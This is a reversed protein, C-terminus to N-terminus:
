LFIRRAGILKESSHAFTDISYSQCTDLGLDSADLIQHNRDRYSGPM